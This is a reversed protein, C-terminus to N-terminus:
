QFMPRLICTVPLTDSYFSPHCGFRTCHTCVNRKRIPFSLLRLCTTRYFSLPMLLLHIYSISLLLFPPQFGRPRSRGHLQGSSTTTWWARPKTDTVHDAMHSAAANDESPIHPIRWPPESQPGSRLIPHSYPSLHGVIPTTQFQNDSGPPPFSLSLTFGFTLPTTPHEPSLQHSRNTVSVQVFIQWGWHTAHTAAV